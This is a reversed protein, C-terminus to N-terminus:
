WILQYITAPAYAYVNIRQIFAIRNRLITYFQPIHMRNYGMTMIFAFDMWQHYDSNVPILRRLGERGGDMGQKILTVADALTTDEDYVTNNLWEITELHHLCTAQVARFDTETNWTLFRDNNAM